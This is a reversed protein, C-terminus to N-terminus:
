NKDQSTKQQNYKWKFQKNKHSISHVIEKYYLFLLRVVVLLINWIVAENMFTDHYVHDCLWYTVNDPSYCLTLMPLHRWQYWVIVHGLTPIKLVLFGQSLDLSPIEHILIRGSVPNQKLGTISFINGNFDNLKM